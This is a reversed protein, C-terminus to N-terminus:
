KKNKTKELDAYFERYTSFDLETRSIAKYIKTLWPKNMFLSSM